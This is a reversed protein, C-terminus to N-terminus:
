TRHWSLQPAVRHLDLVRDLGTLDIVLAIIAVRALASAKVQVDQLRHEKELRLAQDHLHVAERQLQLFQHM